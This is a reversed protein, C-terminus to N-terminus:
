LSKLKEITVGALSSVMLDPVALELDESYNADTVALVKMGASKAGLTDNISDGVALCEHNNVGLKKAALIFPEPDPKGKAVDDATVITEFKDYLRAMSLTFQATERSSGTVIAYKIGSKKLSNLLMKVGPLVYIGRAQAIKKFNSRYDNKFVDLSVRLKYKKRIVGFRDAVSTGMYKMHDEWTFETGSFKNISDKYAQFYIQESNILVGDKDFIVAKLNM